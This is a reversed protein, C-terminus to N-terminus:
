CHTVRFGQSPAFFLGFRFLRFTKISSTVGWAGYVTHREASGRLTSRFRQESSSNLLLTMSLALCCPIKSFGRCTVTSRVAVGSAVVIYREACYSAETFMSTNEKGRWKVGELIRLNGM